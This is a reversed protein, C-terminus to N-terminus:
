CILPGQNSSQARDKVPSRGKCGGGTGTGYEHVQPRAQPSMWTESAGRSKMAQEKLHNRGLKGGGLASRGYESKMHMAPDKKVDLVEHFHDAHNSPGWWGAVHPERGASQAFRQSYSQQAPTIQGRAQPPTWHGHADQRMHEPRVYTVPAHMGTRSPAVVVDGGRASQAADIAVNRGRKGSGSPGHSYQWPAVGTRGSQDSTQFANRWTVWETSSQSSPRGCRREYENRGQEEQQAMCQSKKGGGGRGGFTAPLPVGRAISPIADRGYQYTYGSGWGDPMQPKWAENEQAGVQAEANAKSLSSDVSCKPAYLGSISLGTERPRQTQSSAQPAPAAAPAPSSTGTSEMHKQRYKQRFFNKISSDTDNKDDRKEAKLFMKLDLMEEKIARGLDSNDVVERSKM